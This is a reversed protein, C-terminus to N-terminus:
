YMDSKHSRRGHQESGLVGGVFAGGVGGVITGVPASVISGLVAGTGAGITAGKQKGNLERWHSCGLLLCVLFLFVYRM